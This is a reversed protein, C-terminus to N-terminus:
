LLDQYYKADIVRGSEIRVLIRFGYNSIGGWLM